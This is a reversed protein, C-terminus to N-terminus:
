QGAVVEVKRGWVIRLPYHAGSERLEILLRDALSDLDDESLSTQLKMVTNTATVVRDIM